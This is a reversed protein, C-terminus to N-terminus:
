SVSFLDRENMSVKKLFFFSGKGAKAKGPM